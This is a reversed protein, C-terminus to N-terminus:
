EKARLLGKKLWEDLSCGLKRNKIQYYWFHYRFSLALAIMMVILSLIAALFTGFIFHYGAYILIFFALTAMLLSLRYLAKQREILDTDSLNLEKQASDFSETLAPNTKDDTEDTIKEAMFLRRFINGLFASFSKTREWDFWYPINIISTFVRVVRSGSKKKMIKQKRLLPSKGKM